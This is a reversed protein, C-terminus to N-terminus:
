SPSRSMEADLVAYDRPDMDQAWWPRPELPLRRLAVPVSALGLRRAVALRHHGDLTAFRENFALDLPVRIGHAAIDTELEDLHSPTDVVDAPAPVEERDVVQYRTVLATPLSVVHIM